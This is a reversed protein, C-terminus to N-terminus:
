AGQRNAGSCGLGGALDGAGPDPRRRSRVATALCRSLQRFEDAPRQTEPLSRVCLAAFEARVDLCIQRSKGAVCRDIRRHQAGRAPFTVIVKVPREPWEAHASIPFGSMALLLALLLLRRVM